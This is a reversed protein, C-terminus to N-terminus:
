WGCGDETRHDIAFVDVTDIPQLLDVNIKDLAVVRVPEVAPLVGFRFNHYAFLYFPCRLPDALSLITLWEGLDLRPPTQQTLDVTTSLLLHVAKGVRMYVGIADGNILLPCSM